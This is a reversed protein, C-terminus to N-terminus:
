LSHFKGAHIIAERFHREREETKSKLAETAASSRGLLMEQEDKLMKACCMDSLLKTVILICLFLFM